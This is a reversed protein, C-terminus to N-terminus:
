NARSTRRSLSEEPYEGGKIAAVLVDLNNTATGSVSTGLNNQKKRVGIMRSIVISM